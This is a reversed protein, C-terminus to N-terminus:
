KKRKRKGKRKKKIIKFGLFAILAAGPIGFLVIPSISTIKGIISTGGTENTANEGAISKIRSVLSESKVGRKGTVKFESTINSKLDSFFGNLQTMNYWFSLRRRQRQM